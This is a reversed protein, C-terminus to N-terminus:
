RAKKRKREDDSRTKKKETRQSAYPRRESVHHTKLRENRGGRGDETGIASVVELIM